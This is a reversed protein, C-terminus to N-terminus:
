NDLNTQLLPEMVFPVSGSWPCTNIVVHGRGHRFSSHLYLTRPIRQLCVYGSHIVEGFSQCIWHMCNLQIWHFCIYTCNLTWRHLSWWRVFCTHKENYIWMCTLRLGVILWSNMIDNMNSIGFNLSLPMYLFSQTCCRIHILAWLCNYGELIPQKLIM